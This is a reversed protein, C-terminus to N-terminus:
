RKISDLIHFIVYLFGFTNTDSEYGVFNIFIPYWLEFQKIFSKKKHM